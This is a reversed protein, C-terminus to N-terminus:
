DDKSSNREALPVSIESGKKLEGDFDCVTEEHETGDADTVTVTHPNVKIHYSEKQANIMRFVIDARNECEPSYKGDTDIRFVITGDPETDM